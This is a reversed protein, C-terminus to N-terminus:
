RAAERILDHAFRLAPEVSDLPLRDYAGHVRGAEERTLPFPMLGYCPVGLRRFFRADSSGPSLLPVVRAGPFRRSSAKEIAGYLPHDRGSSPIPELEEPDWTVKIGPDALTAVITQIFRVPDTGPLLRCNM